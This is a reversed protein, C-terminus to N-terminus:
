LRSSKELWTHEKMKAEARPRGTYNSARYGRKEKSFVMSCFSSLTEIVYNRNSQKLLAALISCFFNLLKALLDGGLCVSSFV